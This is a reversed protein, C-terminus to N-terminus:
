KAGWGGVKLGLKQYAHTLDFEKPDLAETFGRGSSIFDMAPRTDLYVGDCKTSKFTEGYLRVIRFVQEVNYAFNRGAEGSVHITEKPPAANGGMPGPNPKDVHAEWITHWQDVQAYNRIENLQHSLTKWKSPDAYGKGQPPGVIARELAGAIGTLSSILLTHVGGKAAKEGVTRLAQMFAAFMSPDYDGQNMSVRRADDQFNYVSFGLAEKPAGCTELLFRKTGGLANADFTFVHLNRPETIIGGKTQWPMVGLASGVLFSTKGVKAVSAALTKAYQSSTYSDGTQEIM